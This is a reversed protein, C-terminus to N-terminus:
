SLTMPYRSLNEKSFYQPILFLCSPFPGPEADCSVRFMVSGPVEMLPWEPALCPSPAKCVDKEDFRGVPGRPPHDGCARRM